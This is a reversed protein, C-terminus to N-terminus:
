MDEKARQYSYNHDANLSIELRYKMKNGKRQNECHTRLYTLNVGYSSFVNCLRTLNGPTDTAIATVDSNSSTTSKYQTDRFYKQTNFQFLSRALKRM